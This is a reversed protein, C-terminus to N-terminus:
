DTCVRHLIEKLRAPEDSLSEEAQRTQLWAVCNPICTQLLYEAAQTLDKRMEENNRDAVGHLFCADPSLPKPFAAVLEPRLLESLLRKPDTANQPLYVPPFARAFDLLYLRGNQSEHGELDLASYLKVREPGCKHGRLNLMKAAKKMLDYLTENCSLIKPHRLGAEQSGYVLTKSSIPLLSMAVLRFGRFDILVMLPFSLGPISCNYYSMLSKLEHGAAKMALHDGGYIGNVDFAFKFLIRPSLYHQSGAFLTSRVELSGM